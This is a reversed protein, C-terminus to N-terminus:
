CQPPSSEDNKSLRHLKAYKLFVGFASITAIMFGAWGDLFGRKLLYDRFFRFKPRLLLDKIKTSRGQQHLEQAAIETFFNLQNLHTQLSDVTYHLINGPLHHTTRAEQLCVHDHPNFGGWRGHRRDWLRLKRDPYWNGHRIWKGMYNNLRNFTFSTSFDKEELTLIAAIAEEDLCEDADLSLCCHHHAQDLAFNKQEIHNTFKRQQVRAGLNKCIEVTSDSSFSDIILVEDCVRQLSQICRAIKKEENYAIVIGSILCPM